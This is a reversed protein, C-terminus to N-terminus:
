LEKGAYRFTICPCVRPSPLPKFLTADVCDHLDAARFPWANACVCVCVSARAFPTIEGAMLYVSYMAAADNAAPPEFSM